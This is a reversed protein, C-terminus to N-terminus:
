SRGFILFSARRTSTGCGECVSVDEPYAAVLVWGQAAMKNCAKEVEINLSPAPQCCGSEGTTVVLVSYRM